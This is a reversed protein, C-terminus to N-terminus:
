LHNWEEVVPIPVAQWTFPDRAHLPRNPGEAPAEAGIAHDHVVNKIRINGSGATCAAVGAAPLWLTLFMGVRLFADVDALDVELFGLLVASFGIWVAATSCVM